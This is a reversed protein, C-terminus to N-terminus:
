SAESAPATVEFGYRAADAPNGPDIQRHGVRALRANVEELHERVIRAEADTVRGRHPRGAHELTAYNIGSGTASTRSASKSAKATPATQLLEAMPTETALADFDDADVVLRRPGSEGPVHVEVVAVPLAAAMGPALEPLLAELQVPHGPLDPHELVVVRVPEDGPVFPKGSLDSIDIIKRGMSTVSGELQRATQADARHLQPPPPVVLRCPLFSPHFLRRPRMPRRPM